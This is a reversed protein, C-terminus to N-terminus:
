IMGLHSVPEVKWESSGTSVSLLFPCLHSAILEVLGFFAHYAPLKDTLNWDM